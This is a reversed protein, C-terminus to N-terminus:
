AARRGLQQIHIQLATANKAYGVQVITKGAGTPISGTIAGATTADLYYRAGSSLGSFGSLLGESVVEVGAALIAAAKAFGITFSKSTSDGLSKSVTDAASIYVADNAALAEGAFYNNTTMQSSDSVGLNNWATGDWMWLSGGFSVLYGQDANTLPTATPMTSMHPVKFADVQGGTNTALGWRIDSSATMTNSRDKGMINDFILDGATQNLWGTSPDSVEFYDQATYGKMTIEDNLSDHELPVGDLSIYLIKRQAM